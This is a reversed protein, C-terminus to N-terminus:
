LTPFWHSIDGHEDVGQAPGASRGQWASLETDLIGGSPAQEHLVSLFHFLLCVQLLWCDPEAPCLVRDGVSLSLCKKVWPEFSVPLFGISSVLCVKVWNLSQLPDLLGGNEGQVHPVTTQTGMQFFVPVESEERHSHPCSILGWVVDKLEALFVGLSTLYCPGM